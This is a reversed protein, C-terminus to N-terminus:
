LYNIILGNEKAYMITKLTGGGTNRFYAVCYSSMDVMFRNRKMMCDSTYERSIIHVEDAARKINDYTKKDDSSWKESQEPCPLALILQVSSNYKKYLIVCQAALTDFGLAGGCVFETVGKEILEAITKLLNDKLTDRDEARIVRHGTFCCTNEKM